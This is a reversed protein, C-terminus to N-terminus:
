RSEGAAPRPARSAPPRRAGVLSEFLQEVEAMNKAWTARADIREANEEAARARLAPDALAALIREAVQTPSGVPVLFGNRGDDIWERNAELDTVVPFAGAAMAELLSVSTSDSTSTSVYIEARGLAAAIAPHPLMGTFTIRDGHAGAAAAAAAALGPREPGDGVVTVRLEPQAAWLAPLAAVLTGVDYVPELKRTSVVLPPAGAAAAAAAARRAARYPAPDVGMPVTLVRAPAAGLECAARTLMRADTTVWDARRLVFRARAAHLPSRRGSLLVDSGWVSVVLPHRGILAGILGYNPVFHANVLEAGFEAVRAAVRGRQLPYRLFRFPIRSEIVQCPYAFGTGPELSILLVQHGRAHFYDGWRRTHIVSANSLLALRV